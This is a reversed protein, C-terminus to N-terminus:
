SGLVPPPSAGPGPATKVLALMWRKLAQKVDEAERAAEPAQGAIADVLDSINKVQEMRAQAAAQPSTTTADQGQDQNPGAAAPSPPPPQGGADTQGSRILPMPMMGM